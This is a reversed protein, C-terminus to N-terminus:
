ALLTSRDNPAFLEEVVSAIMENDKQTGESCLAHWLVQGAQVAKQVKVPLATLSVAPRLEHNMISVSLANPILEIQDVSEFNVMGVLLPNMRGQILSRVDDQYAILPKGLMWTMAAESVAGEDPTRGNLNWVMAECEVVLQYVDLSFIAEHLFQAATPTDWNREVLIELVLRFEMGDRHPLYVSYGTETLLDAIATMEERESRNFLPGACYVRIQENSHQM